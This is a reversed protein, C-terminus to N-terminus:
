PTAVPGVELPLTVSWFGFPAAQGTYQGSAHVHYVRVVGGTEPTGLMLSATFWRAVNDLDDAWFQKFARFQGDTWRYTAAVESTANADLRRYRARGSLVAVSRFGRREDASYGSVVPLGYISQDFAM